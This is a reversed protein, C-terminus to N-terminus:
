NQVSLTKRTQLVIRILAPAGQLTFPISGLARSIALSRALLDPSVRPSQSFRAMKSSVALSATADPAGWVEGMAGSSNPRSLSAISRRLTRTSDESCREVRAMLPM